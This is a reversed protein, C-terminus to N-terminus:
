IVEDIAARLQRAAILPNPSQTLYRVVVFHRVGAAGLAPISSPEVGGTVFVPVEATATALAAYEIGTGERGPKTPTAVVPGASIYDVEEEMSALLQAADHTSLGVIPAAGLLRRVLDVSVDDQGVHIGDAGIELAIDPRDNIIFPVGLDACVSQALRARELLPRAELKKDRLQVVDVGGTVCDTIFQALDDRDPTCLYLNRDELQFFNASSV